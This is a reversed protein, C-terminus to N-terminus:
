TQGSSVKVAEIGANWLPWNSDYIKFILKSAAKVPLHYKTPTSEVIGNIMNDKDGIVISDWVISEVSGLSINNEGAAYSSMAFTYAGVSMAHIHVRDNESIEKSLNLGYEMTRSPNLHAKIKSVYPIYSLYRNIPKIRNKNM